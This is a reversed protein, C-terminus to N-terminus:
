YYLLSMEEVCFGQEDDFKVKCSILAVMKDTPWGASTLEEYSNVVRGNERNRISLRIQENCFMASMNRSIIVRNEADSYQNYQDILNLVSQRYVSANNSLSDPVEHSLEIRGLTETESSNAIDDWNNGACACICYAIFFLIITITGHTWIIRM